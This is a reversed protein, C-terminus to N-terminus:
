LKKNEQTNRTKYLKKQTDSLSQLQFYNKLLEKSIIKDNETIMKNLEDPKQKRM